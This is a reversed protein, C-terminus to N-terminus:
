GRGEVRGQTKDGKKHTHAHAKRDGMGTEERGTLPPLYRCTVLPSPTNSRRCVAIELGGVQQQRSAPAELHAVEAETANLIDAAESTQEQAGGLGGDGQWM